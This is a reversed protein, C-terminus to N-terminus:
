QSPTWGIDRMSSGDVELDGFLKESTEAGMVLRAAGAVLGPPAWFLRAPDPAAAHRVIQPLSLPAPDTIHFIKGAVKESPADLLFTLASVMNELSLLTRRNNVGAFPLPIGRRALNRLREINGRANPGCVLPARVIVVEIGTKQLLGSEADAKSRGYANLPAHPMDARLPPTNGAIAAISSVFIFRKVGMEIAADALMLPLQRNIDDLLEDNVRDNHALAALHIIAECRNLHPAPSRINKRGILALDYGRRALEPVLAQGVFGTGGTVAIRM